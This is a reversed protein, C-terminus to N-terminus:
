HFVFLLCFILSTLSLGQHPHSSPQDANAFYSEIAAAVNGNCSELYFKATDVDSNTVSVFESVGDNEDSM